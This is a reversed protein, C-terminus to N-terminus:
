DRVQAPRRRTFDNLSSSPDVVALCLHNCPRRNNTALDGLNELVEWGGSAEGIGLSRHQNPTSQRFATEPMAPKGVLEPQGYSDLTKRIGELSGAEELGPLAKISQLSANSSAPLAEPANAIGFSEAAPAAVLETSLACSRLSLEHSGLFTQRREVESREQSETAAREFPSVLKALTDDSGQKKPRLGNDAFEVPDM